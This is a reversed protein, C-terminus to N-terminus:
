SQRSSDRAAIEALVESEPSLNRIAKLLLSKDVGEWHQLQKHIERFAKDSVIDFEEAWSIWFELYRRAKKSLRAGEFHLFFNFSQARAMADCMSVGELDPDGCSDMLEDFAESAYRRFEKEIDLNLRTAHEQWKNLESRDGLAALEAAHQLWFQFDLESQVPDSQTDATLRQLYTTMITGKPM